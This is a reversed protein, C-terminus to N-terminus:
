WGIPDFVASASDSKRLVFSHGTQRLGLKNIKERPSHFRIEFGLRRIMAVISAGPVENGRWEDGGPCYTAHFAFVGGPKLVRAVGALCRETDQAYGLTNAMTVVDFVADPFTMDEMNMIQIAPNTSYLDIGTINSWRYGYCWALFLEQVNRPGIILLKASTPDDLLLDAARYLLEARRTTTITKAQTVSANYDHVRRFYADDTSYSKDIRALRALDRLQVLASAIDFLVPLRLIKRLSRRPPNTASPAIVARALARVGRLVSVNSTM